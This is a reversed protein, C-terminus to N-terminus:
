DDELNLEWGDFICDFRYGLNCMQITWEKIVDHELKIKSTFGSLLTLHKKEPFVDLHFSYNLKQIENALLKANKISNSYFFYEIRMEDNESVNLKRLEEITKPIMKIKEEINAKLNKDSVFKIPKFFRITIMAVVPLVFGFVTWGFSNRNLTISKNHCDIMGFIRLAILLTPLAIDM